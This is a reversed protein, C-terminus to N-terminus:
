LEQSCYQQLEQLEKIHHCCFGGGCIHLSSSSDILCGSPSNRLRDDDFSSTAKVVECISLFAGTKHGVVLSELEAM